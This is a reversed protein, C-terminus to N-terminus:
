KIIEVDKDKIRSLWYANKPKMEGEPKLPKKTIPDLVLAQTPKKTPKITYQEAILATNPSLSEKVPRVRFNNTKKGARIGTPITPTTKLKAGFRGTTSNSKAM